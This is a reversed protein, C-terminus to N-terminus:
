ARRREAQARWGRTRLWMLVGTIGLLAPAAGGLVILVQWIAGMGTGDHWRRMTRAIGSGGSEKAPSLAGSADDVQYDAMGGPMQLTVRWAKAKDTPWTIAVPTGAAAPRVAALAEDPTLRTSELPVPRARPAAPAGSLAGFFAPFSIWAGTFSLMALPLAVWFGVLHHLNGDLAPTRRWRVGRAWRGVTPWWLWLGSVCSVLMAVGLWGVISRGAGPIHFSGHLVHLWRMAGSDSSAADLVKGTAPDLWVNTRLPPGRRSADQAAPRAASVVVPGAGEPYRLSALRDGAPLAQAAALAYLSAPLAVAGSVDYRQPNLVRDLPGKWVLIAGSLSLPILLLLLLLGIWKHVQFWLKRLGLRTSAAM